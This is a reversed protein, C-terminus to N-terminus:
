PNLIKGFILKHDGVGYYDLIRAQEEYGHKRYFARAIEYPPRSSTEILLLRAKRRKMEEEAQHLLSTGAGRNWSAPHVVIWYIDYVADTLPAQGYCIYGLIQGEPGEAIRIIYDEEGSQILGIDILELGVKVEEPNFHEQAKLIAELRRRDRKEIGRIKLPLNL